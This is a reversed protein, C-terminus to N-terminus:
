LSVAFLKMIGQIQATKAQSLAEGQDESAGGLMLKSRVYAEQYCCFFYTQIRALHRPHDLIRVFEHM